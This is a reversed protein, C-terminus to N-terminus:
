GQQDSAPKNKREARVAAVGIVVCIGVFVVVFLIVWGINVTPQAPLKDAQDAAAKVMAAIVAFWTAVVYKAFSKM